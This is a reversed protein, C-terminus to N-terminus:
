KLIFVTTLSTFDVFSVVEAKQFLDAPSKEVLVVKGVILDPPYGAGREDQRGLPLDKEGRTLVIDDKKLSLTLLVNEFVLEDSGKGRVIGSAERGDSSAVKGTLTSDKHIILEVKSFNDVASIVKGVLNNGLVVTDEPIVGESSGKDIILYQPLSTGPIFGPSGVVRAPLLSQSESSSQAFQDRLAKNEPILNERELLQKRLSTNELTLNKITENQFGFINLTAMRPPFTTRNIISTFGNLIGFKGIVILLLSLSFFVIFFPLFNTRQQM